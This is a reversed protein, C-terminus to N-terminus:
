AQEWWTTPSEKRDRPHPPRGHARVRPARARRRRRLSRHPDALPPQGSRGPASCPRGLGPRPPQRRRPARPRLFWSRLGRGSSNLMEARSSRGSQQARDQGAGLLLGGNQGHPIGIERHIEGRNLVVNASERIGRHRFDAGGAGQESFNRERATHGDVNSADGQDRGYCGFSAFDFM